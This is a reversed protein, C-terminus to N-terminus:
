RTVQAPAGLAAWGSTGPQASHAEDATVLEGAPGAMSLHDLIAPLDDDGFRGAIAALGLAEDVRAAGVVTALEVARAMKSRIRQAGAAAAETLWRAAGGGLGVFAEEAATRPRPRPQRPGNGGPHGPYHEDDIRPNGPTSLQHRAIEALGSGTRAVIVLEAGHVRCHVRDGVHGPPTSYRVSGFRVTQDDNVLREEGLALVYPDGPLPHLHEREAALRQAPIAASERHVRGNVRECWAACADELDAFRAYEAALNVLTPVLDAKAIKVTAETGGKSEPDFPRCTQVTAGYHRGLAVMDPHRVPIGAVHEVTVTRPNDTLLYAPVGGIIRLARDLCATLSGLGQDWSPLVVRFRSWALWCCFLQTRRGGIKPGEGWDWQLWMGPEPIWPRYTRRHGARWAAKAEAVVRRTSRESGQYGMATLRRHVVDARIKGSSRDVLEEVKAAFEDAARPRRAPVAPDQGADRLAVYRLVTKRDTGALQAASHACGTLDYAELIEMIERGSKTV